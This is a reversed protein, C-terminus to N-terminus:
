SKWLDPDILGLKVAYRVMDMFNHLGLKNRINSRHNEVTKLSISLMDAIEKNSFGEAMLRLIEQERPTLSNYAPDNIQRIPPSDVLRKIVEKSISSDLFYEGKSITDLGSRLSAAASEKVLYGLAGARFSEIIYDIKSHMSIIMIKTEPSRKRIQHLLEIGNIDPLSIDVLAIEPKLRKILRLGEKGIGAEAVVEYKKDRSIVAKLGERLLPHDDIIIIDKKRKM